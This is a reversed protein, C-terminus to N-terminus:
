FHQMLKSQSVTSCCCLRLASRSLALQVQLRSGSHNYVAARQLCHTLM